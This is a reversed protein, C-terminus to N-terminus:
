NLKADLTAKLQEVLEAEDAAINRSEGEPSDHDYLEVFGNKHITLRYRDTRLSKAGAWQSLASDDKAADGNLTAVISEGSLDKPVPIGTLECLTPYLDVTETIRDTAEGPNKMGPIRVILPAHLSEEFLTHKGWVAHEGLHWGHDGWLIVITDDAIKLTELQALIQGVMTDAYTVCAAYHKRVELAFEPESWADRGFHDYRRFEGSGSWTTKGDPKKPHANPPLKADKYSEMYRAPAGFPLHPRILGIALFFPKEDSSLRTLEAIGKETILGDPYSDDPGDHSQFVAMTNKKPGRIEGNALGHMVGRPHKWPGCPMFQETWSGPMEIISTDDWDSGGWGGPHHSVKGISVTNYGKERFWTPLSPTANKIKKARTFLAGNTTSTSGYLGTLLSYRSPGCSPAQVYHRSFRRGESALRDINPSKIYDKGYCGLEPRLDDICILLINKKTSDTAAHSGIQFLASLIGTTIIKIM